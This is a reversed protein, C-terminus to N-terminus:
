QESGPKGSMKPLYRLGCSVCERKEHGDADGVLLYDACLCRPCVEEAAPYYDGYRKVAHPLNGLKVPEEAPSTSDQDDNDM